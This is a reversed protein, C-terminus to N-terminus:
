LKLFYKRPFYYEITFYKKILLITLISTYMLILGLIQFVPDTQIKGRHYFISNVVCM